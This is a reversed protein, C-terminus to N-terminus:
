HELIFSVSVNSTVVVEGGAISPGADYASAEMMATKYMPRPGGGSEVENIQYPRGVNADLEKALTTAIQKANAVARKRAEMKLKDIDGAQFNIGNVQNVGVKYLGAMLEDFKDLKKIKVTMSKQALYFDPNTRGYEAGNYIPQLTVYSTQINKEDVGQKKLYSIIASAKKDTETRAAELTKERTEVGLSVVVETPQVRVEGVGLVNVLPPLPQQQAQVRNFSLAGLLGAMLFLNKM